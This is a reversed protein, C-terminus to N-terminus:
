QSAEATVPNDVIYKRVKDVLDLGPSRGLRLDRVFSPDAVARSGFASASIGSRTLYTEIEALFSEAANM